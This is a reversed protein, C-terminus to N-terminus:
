YYFGFLKLYGTDNPKKNNSKILLGKHKKAYRKNAKELNVKKRM